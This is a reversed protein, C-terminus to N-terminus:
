IYKIVIIKIAEENVLKTKSSVDSIWDLFKDVNDIYDCASRLIVLDYNEWKILIMGFKLRLM